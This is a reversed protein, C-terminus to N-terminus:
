LFERLMSVSNLVDCKKYIICLPDMIFCNLSSGLTDFSRFCQLILIACDNNSGNSCIAICNVSEDLSNIVFSEEKWSEFSMVQYFLKVGHHWRNLKKLYIM